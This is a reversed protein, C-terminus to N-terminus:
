QIVVSLVLERMCSPPSPKWYGRKGDADKTCISSRGGAMNYGYNCRFIVITGIAYSSKTPYYRGYNLLPPPECTIKGYGTGVASGIAAILVVATISVAQMM